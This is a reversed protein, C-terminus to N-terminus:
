RWSGAAAKVRKSVLRLFKVDIDPAPHTGWNQVAIILANTPLDDYSTLRDRERQARTKVM